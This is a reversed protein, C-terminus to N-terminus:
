RLEYGLGVIEKEFADQILDIEKSSLLTQWQKPQSNRIHKHTGSEAAQAMGGFISSQWYAHLARIIETGELGLGVLLEHFLSMDNDVILDEYKVDRFVGQRDFAYMTRIDRGMHHEMEFSIQDERTTYSSLVQQYTKGNFKKAPLHLWPEDSILHFRVASLLMDRPDRIVHIGSAGRAAKCHTLDPVAARYDVFVGPLDSRTEVQSRQEEFYEYKDPRIDWGSEGTNLHVFAFSNAQAIRRFSSVMWVTGSKHHTAVFIHPRTMALTYARAYASSSKAIKSRSVSIYAHLAGILGDPDLGRILRLKIEKASHGGLDRLGEGGLTIFSPQNIDGLVGRWGLAHEEEEVCWAAEIMKGRRQERWSRIQGSHLQMNIMWKRQRIRNKVFPNRSGREIPVPQKQGAKIIHMEESWSEVRHYMTPHSM